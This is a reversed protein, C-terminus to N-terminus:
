MYEHMRAYQLEYMCTRQGSAAKQYYNNHSLSLCFVLGIDSILADGMNSNGESETLDSSNM